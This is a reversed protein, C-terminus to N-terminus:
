RNASQKSQRHYFQQRFQLFLVFSYQNKHGIKYKRYRNIIRNAERERERETGRKEKRGIRKTKFSQIPLGKKKKGCNGKGIENEKKKMKEHREWNEM